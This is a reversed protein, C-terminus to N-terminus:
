GETKKKFKQHCDYCTRSVEDYRLNITKIDKKDGALILLRITKRFQDGILIFDTPVGAPNKQYYLNVCRGAILDEIKRSSEAIAEWDKKGVARDLRRMNLGTAEMAQGLGENTELKIEEKEAEWEKQAWEGLPPLEEKLFKEEERAEEEKLAEPKERECGVLLITSLLCYVASLLLYRRTKM